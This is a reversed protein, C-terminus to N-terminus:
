AGRSAHSRQPAAQQQLAAEFARMARVLTTGVSTEAIGLLAALERYSHGEHRLLLLQRDRLPLADLAARVRDRAEHALVSADSPEEESRPLATAAHRAMIQYRLREQRRDDRLLNMAVSVIWQRPKDPMSGRQYLRVFTEQAIDMALDADDTLRALYRYLAEYQAHFVAAVAEVFATNASQTPTAAVSVPM